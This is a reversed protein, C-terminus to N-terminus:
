KGREGKDREKMEEVIEELERRGKEPIHCLYGVLTSTNNFGLEILLFDQHSPQNRAMEDPDADNAFTYTNTQLSSFTLFICKTM